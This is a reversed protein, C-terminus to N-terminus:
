LEQAPYWPLSLLLLLTILLHSYLFSNIFFADLCLALLSFLPILAALRGQKLQLSFHTATIFFPMLFLILGGLGTTVWLTLWSSDAGARSHISFNHPGQMQGAFQYANYGVGLWPHQAALQWAAQLSSQRLAVTPDDRFFQTAREGLSLWLAGLVVVGILSATYVSLLRHFSPRRLWGLLFFPSLLLVALGGAVFASRSRTIVLAGTLLAALGASHWSPQRWARAIGAPLLIVFFIGIFNPDLWTSVLRGQHPDWGWAALFRLDSVFVAQLIGVIALCAAAAWFSKRALARLEFNQFLIFFAPLLLLTSALRFWYLAAIASPLVGLFPARLLLVSLSWALFLFLNCIIARQARPLPWVVHGLLYQVVVSLELAIVAIDSLLLGGGQGPLPIRVLQGVGVSVVLFVLAAPPKWILWALVIGLLAIVLSSTLLPLFPTFLISSLM